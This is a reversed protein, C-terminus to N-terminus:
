QKWSVTSLLKAVEPQLDESAGQSFFSLTLVMAKHTIFVTRETLDNSIFLVAPDAGVNFDQRKYLEPHLKRALYPSYYDLQGYNPSAVDFAFHKEFNTSATFMYAELDIDGLTTKKANYVGPYRFSVYKGSYDKITPGHKTTTDPTSVIVAKNGATTWMFIGVVVAAAVIGVFVFVITRRRKSPRQNNIASFEM